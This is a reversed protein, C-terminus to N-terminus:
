GRSLRIAPNAVVLIAALVALGILWGGAHSEILLIVAVAALAGLTLARGLINKEKEM